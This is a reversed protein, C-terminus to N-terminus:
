LCSFGSFMHCTLINTVYLTIEQKVSTEVKFLFLACIHQETPFYKILSARETMLVTLGIQYKGCRQKMRILKSRFYFRRSCVKSAVRNWSAGTHCSLNLM